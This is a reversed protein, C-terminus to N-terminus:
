SAARSSIKVLTQRRLRCFACVEGTTPQGCEACAALEVSGRHSAFAPQGRDLFRVPLQSEPGPIAGGPRQAVGQVPQDHQGGGHPVGGGRIRDRPDGRVRRDGARRGPDAAEGQPDPRRRRRAPGASAAGPVRPEVPPRQRLAHRGRRRPQAGHRPRRLWRGGGGPQPHLAQLPRMRLLGHSGHRGGGAPHLVRRRHPPRRDEPRPGAVRRIGPHVPPQRVLVGRDWTCTSATSRYGARHPHGLPRPQGQRRFGWSWNTADPRFMRYHHITKEVQRHIHDVFPACFNANHRRVQIVAIRCVKCKM